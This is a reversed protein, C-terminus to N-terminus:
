KAKRMEAIGEPHKPSIEYFLRKKNEYDGRYEWKSQYFQFEAKYNNDIFCFVAVAVAVIVDYCPLGGDRFAAFITNNKVCEWYKEFLKCFEKKGGYEKVFKMNKVVNMFEYGLDLKDSSVISPSYRTDIVLIPSTWENDSKQEEFMKLSNNFIKVALDLEHNQKAIKQYEEDYSKDLWDFSINSQNKTKNVVTKITFHKARSYRKLQELNEVTDPVKIEALIHEFLQKSIYKLTMPMQIKEKCDYWDLYDGNKDKGLTVTMYVCKPEDFFSEFKDHLAICSIHEINKFAGKEVCLVEDPICIFSLDKSKCKKLCGDEIVSCDRVRQKAYEVAFNRMIKEQQADPKSIAPYGAKLYAIYAEYELPSGLFCFSYLPDAGRMMYQAYDEISVDSGSRVYALIYHSLFNSDLESNGTAKRLNKQADDYRVYESLTLKKAYWELYKEYKKLTLGPEDFKCYAVFQEVTLKEYLGSLYKTIEKDSIGEKLLEEKAIATSFDSANM